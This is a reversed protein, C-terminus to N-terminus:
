EKHKQRQQRLGSWIDDEDKTINDELDDKSEVDSGSERFSHFFDEQVFDYINDDELPLTETIEDDLDSPEHEPKNDSELFERLSELQDEVKCTEEKEPIKEQDVPEREEDDFKEPEELKGGSKESQARVNGASPLILLIENLISKAINVANENGM